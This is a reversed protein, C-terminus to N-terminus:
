IKVPYCSLNAYEAIMRQTLSESLHTRKLVSIQLITQKRMQLSVANVLSRRRQVRFIGIMLDIYLNRYGTVMFFRIGARRCIKVVDPIDERPPDVIGVMGIVTLGSKAVDMITDGFLAHDFGMGAPLDSPHVIKRALLLVRQGRSAWTEQLREVRSRMEEDLPVVDGSPTLVSSCNPILLDPAGKKLLLLDSDNFENELKGLASHVYARTNEGAEV